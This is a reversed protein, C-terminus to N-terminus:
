AFEPNQQMGRMGRAVSKAGARAMDMGGRRGSYAQGELARAAKVMPNSMGRTGAQFGQHAIDKMGKGKGFAGAAAGAARAAPNNFTKSLDQARSGLTERLGRGETLDAGAQAAHKLYKNDAGEGVGRMAGSLADKANGGNLVSGLAGMAANGGHKVLNQGMSSNMFKNAMGAGKSLMGAGKSAMGSLAPAAKKVINSLGSFLGGLGFYEPKGTHPNISGGGMLHDLTKRTQPGILATESDGNRGRKRMENAQAMMEGIRGGKAHHEYAKNLMPAIQHINEELPGFHRLHTGPINVRGGQARDLMELEQPNFHAETFDNNHQQQGHGNAGMLHPHGVEVNYNAM